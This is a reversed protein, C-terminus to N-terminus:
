PSHCIDAACFRGRAPNDMDHMVIGLERYDPSESADSYLIVLPREAQGLQFIRKPLHDRHLITKFFATM